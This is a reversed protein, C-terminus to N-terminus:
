GGGDSAPAFLRDWIQDLRIRAASLPLALLWEEVTRDLADRAPGEPAAALFV